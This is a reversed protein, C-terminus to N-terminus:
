TALCEDGFSLQQEQADPPPLAHRFTFADASPGHARLLQLREIAQVVSPRHGQPVWWLVISAERMRDFWEKRRRMIEVHATKYVYHNLSAVDKWVSLNVLTQDGLPRLATADTAQLSLRVATLPIGTAQGARRQNRGAM